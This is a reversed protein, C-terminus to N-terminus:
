PLVVAGVGAWLSIFNPFVHHFVDCCRGLTGLATEMPFVRQKISAVSASIREMRYCPHFRFHEICQSRCSFKQCGGIVSSCFGLDQCCSSM